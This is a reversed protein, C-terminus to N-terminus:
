GQAGGHIGAQSHENLELVHPIPTLLGAYPVPGGIGDIEMLSVQLHVPERCCTPQQPSPPLFDTQRLLAEHTCRIPTLGALREVAEAPDPAQTLVMHLQDVHFDASALDGACSRSASRAATHYEAGAPAKPM